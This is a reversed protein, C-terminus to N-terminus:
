GGWWSVRERYRQEIKDAMEEVSVPNKVIEPVDAARKGNLWQLFGADTFAFKEALVLARQLRDFGPLPAWLVRPPISLRKCFAEWAAVNIKLMYGTVM